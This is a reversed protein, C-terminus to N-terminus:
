DTCEQFVLAAAYLTKSDVLEGLLVVQLRCKAKYARKSTRAFVTRSSLMLFTLNTNGPDTLWLARSRMRFSIWFSGSFRNDRSLTAVWGNMKFYLVVFFHTPVSQSPTSTTISRTTQIVTNSYWKPKTWLKHGGCVIFASCDTIPPLAVCVIGHFCWCNWPFAYMEM